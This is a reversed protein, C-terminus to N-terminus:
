RISDYIKKNLKGPDGQPGLNKHYTVKGDAHIIDIEFLTHGIRHIFVPFCGRTQKSYHAQSSPMQM